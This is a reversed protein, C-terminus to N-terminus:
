RHLRRQFMRWKSFPQEILAAGSSTRSLIRCGTGRVSATLTADSTLPWVDLHAGFPLLPAIEEHIVEVLKTRDVLGDFVLVLVLGPKLMKGEVFCMPLHAERVEPFKVLMEALSQALSGDPKSPVGIRVHAGPNISYDM